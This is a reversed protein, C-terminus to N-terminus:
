EGLIKKAEEETLGLAQAIENDEFSKSLSGSIKEKNGKVIRDCNVEDWSADQGSEILDNLDDQNPEVSKKLEEKPQEQSKALADDYYGNVSFHHNRGFTKAKLLSNEDAWDVSKKVPANVKKQ